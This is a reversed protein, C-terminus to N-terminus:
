FGDPKRGFATWEYGYKGFSMAEGVKFYLYGPGAFDVIDWWSDMGSVIFVPEGDM